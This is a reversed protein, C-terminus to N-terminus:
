DAFLPTSLYKDATDPLLVVIAKEEDEPCKTRVIAAFAVADSSIGVLVGESKDILQDASTYINAM